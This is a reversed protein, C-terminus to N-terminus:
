RKSFADNDRHWVHSSSEVSNDEFQGSLRLGEVDITFIGWGDAKAFPLNEYRRAPTRSVNFDHLITARKSSASSCRCHQASTITRSLDNLPSLSRKCESMYTPPLTTVLGGKWTLGAYIRTPKSIQIPSSAAHDLSHTQQVDRNDPQIADYNQISIIKHVDVLPMAKTQRGGSVRVILALLEQCGQTQEGWWQVSGVKTIAPKISM